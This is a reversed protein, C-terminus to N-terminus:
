WGPNHPARAAHPVQLRSRSLCLERALLRDLRQHDPIAVALAIELSDWAPSARLVAKHVTCEAFTEIRQAKRRLAEVDLAFRRATRGSRATRANASIPRGSLM